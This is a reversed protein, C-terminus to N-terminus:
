RSTKWLVDSYWSDPPTTYPRVLKVVPKLKIKSLAATAPGVYRRGQIEKGDILESIKIRAKRRIRRSFQPRKQNTMACQGIGHFQGDGVLTALRVYVPYPLPLVTSLVEDQIVSQKFTRIDYSISMGLSYLEDILWQSGLVFDIRYNAM